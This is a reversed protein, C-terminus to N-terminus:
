LGPISNKTCRSLSSHPTVTLVTMPKGRVSTTLAAWAWCSEDVSMARKALSPTDETIKTPSGMVGTYKVLAAVRWCYKGSHIWVPDASVSVAM